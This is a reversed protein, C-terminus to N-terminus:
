RYPSASRAPEASGVGGRTTVVAGFGVLFVIAHVVGGITPVAGLLAFAACAVALRKWPNPIRHALLAEGATAVTLAAGVYAAAMAVGFAAAALPIGVITVALVVIATATGLAAVLGLGLSRGFQTAVAARIRDARNRALGLALVGALFLAAFRTAVASIAETVRHVRSPGVETVGATGTDKTYHVNVGGPSSVVGGINEVDGEVRAGEEIELKGGTVHVDGKVTAGPLLTVIGGTVELDGDITAEIRSIGGVVSVDDYRDGKALHTIGFLTADNDERPARRAPTETSADEAAPAPVESRRVSVRDGDRTAVFAGEDMFLLELAAKPTIEKVHLSIPHPSEEAPAVIQLGSAAALAGLAEHRSKAEIALTVPRDDEWRGEAQFTHPAAQAAGALTIMTAFGALASLLSRNM